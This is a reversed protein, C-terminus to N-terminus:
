LIFRLVDSSGGPPQDSFAGSLEKKNQDVSRFLEKLM